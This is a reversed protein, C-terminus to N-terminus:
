SGSPRAALADEIATVVGEVNSLVENNWFRLVIYGASALAESHLQDADIADMHQSGDVEIVLRADIRAFDAVFGEVTQQRRFKLGQVQRNRLYAWLKREADTSNRRLGCKLATRSM